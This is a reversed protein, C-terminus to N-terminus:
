GVGHPPTGWERAKRSGGAMIHWQGFHTTLASFYLNLGDSTFLPLCGPALSRRLSHIVTHAMNQTRPGLQLVPVIKTRPDLALWLFVCRRLAASGPAFKTWSCTRSTCTASAASM